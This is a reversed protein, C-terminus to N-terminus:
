RKLVYGEKTAMAKRYKEKERRIRLLEMHEAHTLFVSPPPEVRHVERQGRWFPTKIVMEPLFQPNNCCADEPVHVPAADEAEWEKIKGYCSGWASLLRSGAMARILEEAKSGMELLEAPAVSYKLVERATGEKAKAVWVVGSEQGIVRGWEVSLERQSQETRRKREQATQGRQPAPTRVAMWPCDLLAHIHPHFGENTWTIEIGALGGKVKIDNWWKLRRFKTFAKRLSRIGDVALATSRQTLTVFLPSEMRDIVSQYRAVKEAALKRACVPCWRKRCRTEVVKAQGCCVCRLPLPEECKALKAALDHAGTSELLERLSTRATAAAAAASEAPTPATTPDTM